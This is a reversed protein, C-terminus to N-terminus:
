YCSGTRIHHCIKCLKFLKVLVFTKTAASFPDTSTSSNTANKNRLIPVKLHYFGTLCASGGFYNYPLLNQWSFFEHFNFVDM